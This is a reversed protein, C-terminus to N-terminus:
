KGYFLIALVAQHTHPGAKGGSVCRERHSKANYKDLLAQVRSGYDQDVTLCQVMRKQIFLQPGKLHGAMNRCLREREAENLVATFFTRVRGNDDDSSNHGVDPCVRFKSETFHPVGCDPASFNNHYYNLVGGQNDTMCM